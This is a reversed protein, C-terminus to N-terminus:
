PIVQLSPVDLTSVMEETGQKVQVMPVDRSIVEEEEEFPIEQTWPVGLPSSTSTNSTALAALSPLVPIM